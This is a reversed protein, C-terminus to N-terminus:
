IIPEKKDEMIVVTSAYVFKKQAVAGDDLYIKETRTKGEVYIKDGKKAKLYFGKAKQGFLKVYHWETQHEWEGNKGRWRDDTAVSFELIYQQSTDTLEGIKGINGILQQRNLM